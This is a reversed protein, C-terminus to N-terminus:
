PAMQIKAIKAPGEPLVTRLGFRPWTPNQLDSRGSVATVSTVRILADSVMWHAPARVLFRKRVISELRNRVTDVVNLILM